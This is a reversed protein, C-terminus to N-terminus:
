QPPPGLLPNLRSPIISPHKLTFVTTGTCAILLVLAIALILITQHTRRAGRLLGEEVCSSAQSDTIALEEVLKRTAPGVDALIVAHAMSPDQVTLTSSFDDGFQSFMSYSQLYAVRTMLDEDRAELQPIIRVEYDIKVETINAVIDEADANVQKLEELSPRVQHKQREAKRPSLWSQGWFHGTLSSDPVSKVKKEESVDKLQMASTEGVSTEGM